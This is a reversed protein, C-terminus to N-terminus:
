LAHPSMGGVAHSLAVSVPKFMSAVDPHLAFTFAGLALLSLMLGAIMSLIFIADGSHVKDGQLRKPRVVLRRYLLAGVAALVLLAFLEQSLTYVGYLPAPLVRSYDFGPFLGGAIIEVTGITLVVFGWFVSAHLAGALPDRLIKAQGLGIVVLNRIRTVPHDTRDEGSGVTTMYRVLRQANYSFFALALVVVAIFIVHGPTV